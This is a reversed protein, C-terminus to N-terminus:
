QSYSCANCFSKSLKIFKFSQTMQYFICLVFTITVFIFGAAIHLVQITIYKGYIKSRPIMLGRDTVTVTVMICSFLFPYYAFFNLGKYLFCIFNHNLPFTLLSPLPVTFVGVGMDSPSLIIFLKGPRSKVKKLM